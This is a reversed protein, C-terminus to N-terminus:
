WMDYLMPGHKIGCPTKCPTGHMYSAITSNYWIMVAMEQGYGQIECRKECHGEELGCV